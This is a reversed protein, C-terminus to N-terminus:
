VLLGTFERVIVTINAGSEDPPTKAIAQKAVSMRDEALLLVPVPTLLVFDEPACASRSQAAPQKKVLVYEYVKM